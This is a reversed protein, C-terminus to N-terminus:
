KLNDVIMKPWIERIFVRNIKLNRLCLSSNILKRVIGLIDVREISFLALYFKKNLRYVINHSLTMLTACLMAFKNWTHSRNYRTFLFDMPRWVDLTYTIDYWSELLTLHIQRKSTSHIFYDNTRLGLITFFDNNESFHLKTNFVYQGRCM